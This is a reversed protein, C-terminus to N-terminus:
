KGYIKCKYLDTISYISRDCIVLIVGLKLNEIVSIKGNSAWNRTLKNWPYTTAFRGVVFPFQSHRQPQVRLGLANVACRDRKWLRLADILIRPMM